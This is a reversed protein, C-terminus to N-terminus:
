SRSNTWQLLIDCGVRVGGQDRRGKVKEKKEPVPHPVLSHRFYRNEMVSISGAMATVVEDWKDSNKDIMKQRLLEANPEAYNWM